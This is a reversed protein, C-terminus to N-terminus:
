SSTNQGDICFHPVASHRAFEATKRLRRIEDHAAELDDLIRPLFLHAFDMLAADNAHRFKALHYDPQGERKSTLDHTTEGKCWFGRTTHALTERGDAIIDEIEFQAPDPKIFAVGGM